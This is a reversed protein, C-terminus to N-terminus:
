RAVLSRLAVLDKKNIESLVMLMGIYVLGGANIVCVLSLGKSYGMVNVLVYVVIGMVCSACGVKWATKVPFRWCFYRRSLIIILVLLFTYSVLTTVAAAINGFKPVLLLNLVINLVGACLTCFANVHTKRYFLNGVHFRQALGLFLMGFVVFPVVVFGGSYRADLLVGIIDRSLVSIAMAAPVAVILYMRTVQEVFEGCKTGGGEWLGMAIPRDTLIFLTNLLLITKEGVLYSASYTGVAVYSVFVGLIYRDSLSVVWAALNGLVVPLGYKGMKAILPISMKGSKLSIGKSAVKWLVPLAMIISLIAGVFLAEVGFDFVKILLIALAFSVASRWVSYSSYWKVERRIRLLHLLMDGVIRFMAFLIGICALDQLEPSIHNRLLVMVCVAIFSMVAMTLAASYAANILFDNM